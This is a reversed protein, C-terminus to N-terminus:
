PGSRHGTFHRPAPWPDRRGEALESEGSSCSLARQRRSFILLMV